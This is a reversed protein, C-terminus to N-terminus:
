RVRGNPMVYRYETVTRTQYETAPPVHFDNFASQDIKSTKINKRKCWFGGISCIILPGLIIVAIQIGNYLGNNWRQTGGEPFSGCFAIVSILLIIICFTVIVCGCDYRTCESNNDFKDVDEIQPSSWILCFSIFSCIIILLGSIGVIIFFITQQDCAKICSANNDCQQCNFDTALTIQLFAVSLVLLIISPKM